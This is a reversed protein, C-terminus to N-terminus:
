VEVLEVEAPGIANKKLSVNMSRIFFRRGRFVFKDRLDLEVLDRATFLANGTVVVKDKEIWAKFATHRQTLGSLM